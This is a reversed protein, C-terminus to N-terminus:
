FPLDDTNEEDRDKRYPSQKDPNIKVNSDDVKASGPTPIDTFITEKKQPRPKSQEKLQQSVRGTNGNIKVIATSNKPIMRSKTMLFYLSGSEGITFGPIEEGVKKKKDEIEKISKGRIKETSSWVLIIESSKREIWSSDAICQNNLELPSAAERSLQAGVVIPLKTRQAIADLEVMAKKLEDSRSYQSWNEVYIEQVYDILIAKIKLNKVAYEILAILTELYNDGPKVIKIKGSRRINKWEEEAKFFKERTDERMFTKEGKTLWETITTLNSGKGYNATLIDNFYSNEFQINVNQENEEYTIFLITEGEGISEIADLAISQLIKSKGNGTAAGITSVAGSPFSLSYVTENNGEQHYLEFKTALADSKDKYSEYLEDTNDKLLSSFGTDQNAKKVTRIADKLVSVNKRYERISDGDGPLGQEKEAENKVYNSLSRITNAAWKRETDGSVENLADQLLELSELTNKNGKGEFVNASTDRLTNLAEEKGDGGEAAKIRKEVSERIGNEILSYEQSDQFEKRLYAFLTERKYPERYKSALEIYENVFRFFETETQSSQLYKNFAKKFLWLGGFSANDILEQLEEKSHNKLYEDVDKGEPLTATLSNLGANDINLISEETYKQGAEDSDLFIVVDKYGKNRIAEAQEPVIQSGSTAIINPLGLAIAHLADLEGEVVIVQKKKDTNSLNSPVIGFPKKNMDVWKPLANRYKSNGYKKKAEDTIYRCKFGIVHGNSFYGISLPFDEVKWSIDINCKDKITQAEEPSMYGIGMKRIDEQSYGRKETLYQMLALAEPNSSDFLARRQRDLSLALQERRTQEEEWTKANKGEPLLHSVGVIDSLKKIAEIRDEINNHEMYLSILNRSGGGGNETAVQYRSETVITKDKRKNRPSTGDINFPSRWKNGFREFKMEPFIRDLNRFIAPYLEEDVFNSLEM